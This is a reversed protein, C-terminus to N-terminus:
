LALRPNVKAVLRYIAKDEGNEYVARGDKYIKLVAGNLYHFTISDEEKASATVLNMNIVLATKGVVMIVEHRIVSSFWTFLHEVDIEIVDVKTV